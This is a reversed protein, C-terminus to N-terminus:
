ILGIGKEIGIKICGIKWDKKIIKVIDWYLAVMNTM